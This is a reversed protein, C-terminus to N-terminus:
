LCSFGSIRGFDAFHGTLQTFKPYRVAFMGRGSHHVVPVGRVAPEGRLMPLLSVIAPAVGPAPAEGVIDALTAYLDTQSVTAATDPM